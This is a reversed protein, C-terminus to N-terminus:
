PIQKRESGGAMKAVNAAVIRVSFHLLWRSNNSSVPKELAPVTIIARVPPDSCRGVQIRYPPPPLLSLSLSLSISKNHLTVAINHM